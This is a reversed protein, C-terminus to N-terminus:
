AASEQSAQKERLADITRVAQSAPATFLYAAQFLSAKFAGAAKALLVERSELDALKNIDEATLPRGDLVGAKIVLQPNAKAFDRLGKAAEVPDGSVFAIASPGALDADLGEVGAEKAAIATLTNKVVAYTANGSLSRRLQKLQAVTLGRYETLVAANSERFLDTLEAVAAAKDPRAM